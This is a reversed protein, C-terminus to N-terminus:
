RWRRTRHLVFVMTVTMILPAVVMFGVLLLPLRNGLVPLLVLVIWLEVFGLGAVAAALVVLRPGASRAHGASADTPM